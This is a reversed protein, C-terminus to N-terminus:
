ARARRQARTEGRRRVGCASGPPGIAWYIPQGDDWAPVARRGDCAACRGQLESPYLSPKRFRLDRTRTVGPASEQSTAPVPLECWLGCFVIALFVSGATGTSRSASVPSDIMSHARALELLIEMAPMTITAAAAM